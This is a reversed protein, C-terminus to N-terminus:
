QIIFHEQGEVQVLSSLRIPWLYEYLDECFFVFLSTKTELINEM